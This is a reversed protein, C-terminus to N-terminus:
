DSAADRYKASTECNGFGVGIASIGTEIAIVPLAASTTSVCTVSFMIFVAARETLWRANVTFGSSSTLTLAAPARTVRWQFRMATSRSRGIPGNAGAVKTK